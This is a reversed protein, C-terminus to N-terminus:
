KDIEWHKTLLLVAISAELDGNRKFRETVDKIPLRYKCVASNISEPSGFVLHAKRALGSRHTTIIDEFTACSYQRAMNRVRAELKKPTTGLETAWQEGTQTVGGSTFKSTSFKKLKVVDSADNAVKQQYKEHSNKRIGYIEKIDELKM